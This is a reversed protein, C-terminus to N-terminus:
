EADFVSIEKARRLRYRRRVILRLLTVAPVNENVSGHSSPVCVM